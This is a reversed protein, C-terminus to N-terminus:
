AGTFISDGCLMLRTPLCPWAPGNMARWGVALLRANSRGDDRGEFGIMPKAIIGLSDCLIPAPHTPALLCATTRFQNVWRGTIGGSPAIACDEGVVVMKVNFGEQQLSECCKDTQQEPTKSFTPLTPTRKMVTLLYPLRVKAREAALGFNLRDGTYNM